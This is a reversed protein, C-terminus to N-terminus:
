KYMDLLSDIDSAPKKGAKSKARMKANQAIGRLEKLGARYESASQARDLRAIAATAAAGERETIAGGGRLSEFATLFAKGEVQAAAVNFNKADTGGIYNRVDMRASAGTGAELGPHALVKDIAAITQDANSLAQPLGAVAEARTTAAAKAETVASERDITPKTQAIYADLDARNKAAQTMGANQAEIQGRLPLANIQAAEQAATVAGAEVEKPRGAFPNAGSATMGRHPPELHVHDGEDIAEYGMSRAQAMFQPKLQNPVPYDAAEGTLHYSNAVGGVNRNHQPSRTTSSPRIGFRQTLSAFDNSPNLTGGSPARTAAPAPSAVGSGYAAGDGIVQAGVNRPDVAVLREIGDAGTIKQYSIAAGSARALEGNDRKM